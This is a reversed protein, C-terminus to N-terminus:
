KICGFSKGFMRLDIRAAVLIDNVVRDVDIGSTLRTVRRNTSCCTLKIGSFFEDSEVDDIMPESETEKKKAVM